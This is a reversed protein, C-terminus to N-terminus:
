CLEVVTIKQTLEKEPKYKALTRDFNGTAIDAQIIRAKSEAVLRNVKSELLGTYLYYRQGQFCLCLRLRGRFNQVSVTGKPAKKHALQTGILSQVEIQVEIEPCIL